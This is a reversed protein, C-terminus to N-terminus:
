RDMFPLPEKSINGEEDLRVFRYGCIDEKIVWLWPHNPFDICVQHTTEKGGQFKDSCEECVLHRSSHITCFPKGDVAM